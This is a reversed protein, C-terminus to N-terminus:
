SQSHAARIESESIDRLRARDLLVIQNASRVDIIGRSRLQTLFRSVTEVTLGLYDAIDSRNMPLDLAQESSVAASKHEAMALLFTSLRELASKRGLLVLRDQAASLEGCMMDLFQRVARPNRDLLAEFAARSYRVLRVDGLTEITHAAHGDHSFGFFDGPLLFNTVCRRGDALLRVSRLAGDVVKFVYDTRDGERVVAKDRPYTVISGISDLEAAVAAADSTPVPRLYDPRDRNAPTRVNHRAPRTALATM